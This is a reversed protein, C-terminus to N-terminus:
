KDRLINEIRVGSLNYIGDIIEQESVIGDQVCEYLDLVRSIFEPAKKTCSKPWYQAFLVELPIGIMYVFAKDIAQRMIQDTHEDLAERIKANLQEETFQYVPTKKTKEKEARRMEARNM